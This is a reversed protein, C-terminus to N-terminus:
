KVLHFIFPAGRVSQCDLIPYVVLVLFQSSISGFLNHFNSIEVHFNFNSCKTTIVVYVGLLLFLFNPHQKCNQSAHQYDIFDLIFMPRM